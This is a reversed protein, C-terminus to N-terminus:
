AGPGDAVTFRGAIAEPIPEAKMTGDAGRRVCVITLTGEAVDRGACAMTCTYRISTRGIAAIRIFIDFEDEFRLPSRFDFSMAVRPFGIDSGTPAISLGAERWLAHEAEELYRAFCSFHVIGVSDVEYFHVRRRLHFQSLPASRNAM